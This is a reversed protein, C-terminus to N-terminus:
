HKDAVIFNQFHGVAVKGNDSGFQNIGFSHVNDGASHFDVNMTAASPIKHFTRFLSESCSDFSM